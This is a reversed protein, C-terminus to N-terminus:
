IRKTTLKLINTWVLKQKSKLCFRKYTFLSIQHKLNTTKSGFVTKWLDGGIVRVGRGEELEATAVETLDRRRQWRALVGSRGLRLFM